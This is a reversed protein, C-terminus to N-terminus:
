ENRYRGVGQPGTRNRSKEPRQHVPQLQRRARAFSRRHACDLHRSVPAEKAQARFLCVETRAGGIRQRRPLTQITDALLWERARIDKQQASPTKYWTKGSTHTAGKEKM